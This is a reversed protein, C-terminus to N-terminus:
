ATKLVSSRKAYIMWRMSTAGPNTPSSEAAEIRNLDLGNSFFDSGGQLVIVRTPRQLAARYAALLRECAATGMAGNYFDFALYGVEGCERYAIEDQVLELEPLAATQPFALAM